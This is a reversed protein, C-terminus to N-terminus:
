PRMPSVPYNQVAAGPVYSPYRGPMFPNNTYAPPPYFAGAAIPAVTQFHGDYPWYNYWPAAMYVPLTPMRTLNRGSSLSPSGFFGRSWFRGNGNMHADPANYGYGAGGAPPGYYAPGGYTGSPVTPATPPAQALAEASFFGAAVVAAMIWKKMIIARM